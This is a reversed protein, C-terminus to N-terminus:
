MDNPTAGNLILAAATPQAGVRYQLNFYFTKFKLSQSVQHFLFVTYFERRSIWTSLTMLLLDLSTWCRPFEEQQQTQGEGRHAGGGRRNAM